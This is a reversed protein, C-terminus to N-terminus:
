PSPQLEKQVFNNKRQNNSEVGNGEDADDSEVREVHMLIADAFGQGCISSVFAMLSATKEREEDLALNAQTYLFTAESVSATLRELAAKVELRGVELKRAADVVDVSSDVPPHYHDLTPVPDEEIEDDPPAPFEEAASTRELKFEGDPQPVWNHNTVLNIPAPNSPAPFLRAMIAALDYSGM